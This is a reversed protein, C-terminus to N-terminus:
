PPPAAAPPAAVAGDPAPTVPTTDATASDAPAPAATTTADAATQAAINARSVLISTVLSYPYGTPLAYPTPPDGVGSIREEGPFGYNLDDRAASEIGDPTNLANVDQQLQGNAHQLIELERERAALEDRQNWWRRVPLVVLAAVIACAIAAAIVGYGIRIPRREAMRSDRAIPRSLDRLASPRPKSGTAPPEAPVARLPRTSPTASSRDNATTATRASFEVATAPRRAPNTPARQEPAAPATAGPQGSRKRRSPRATDPSRAESDLSSAGAAVIGVVPEIPRPTPLSPQGPVRASVSRQSAPRAAAITAAFQEAPPLTAASPGAATRVKAVPARRVAGPRGPLPREPLGRGPTDNGNRRRRPARASPTTEGTVPRQISTTRHGGTM